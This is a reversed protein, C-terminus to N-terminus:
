KQVDESVAPQVLVLGVVAPDRSIAEPEVAPVLRARPVLRSLLGGFPEQLRCLASLASLLRQCLVPLLSEAHMNMAPRQCIMHQQMCSPMIRASIFRHDFNAVM